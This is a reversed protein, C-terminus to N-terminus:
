LAVNFQVRGVALVHYRAHLAVPTGEAAELAAGSGNWLVHAAGELDRVVLDGSVADSSEVIGDIWEGPTASALRAQILHLAHGPAFSSCVDGHDCMCAARERVQLPSFAPQPSSM